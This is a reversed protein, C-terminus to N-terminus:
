SRAPGAGLWLAWHGHAMSFEGRSVLGWLAVEDGKKAPPAPCRSACM